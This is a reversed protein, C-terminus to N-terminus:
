KQEDPRLQQEGSEEQGLRQQGLGPNYGVQMLWVGHPDAANGAMHRDKLALLELLWDEGKIGRGVKIANAVILRVMQRLFSDAKLDVIFGERTKRLRVKELTRVMSDSSSNHSYSTFDHTGELSKLAREMRSLDLELKEWHRLDDQVCYQYRTKLPNLKGSTNVVYWYRRYKADFRPHFDESVVYAKRVRISPLLLRNLALPMLRTPIDVETFFSVVQGLAHVNKDTRGACKIEIEHEFLKKLVRELEGQITQHHLQRQFGVWDTGDYAIKLAIQRYM